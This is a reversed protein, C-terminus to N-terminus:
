TRVRRDGDMPTTVADVVIASGGLLHRGLLVGGAETASSAHQIFGQMIIWAAVSIELRTGDPRLFILPWPSHQEDM